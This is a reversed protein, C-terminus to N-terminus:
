FRKSVTVAWERPRGPQGAVSGQGLTQDFSTVLYYKDFINTASLSIDLDDAANSWTLRANALTYSSIYSTPANNAATYLGSQYTVDFRPTLTSGGPLVAEYQAGISWKWKTTFPAVDNLEVGQPGSAAPAISTYEFDIYSLSADILMGALPRITTEAEFGKVDANGANATMSCPAVANGPTFAPCSTLVLQIDRYRNYYASLNLRVARDLFDSKLGIEYANISESSFPRVQSAFYPRPNIGGGKYGTSFQAYTMLTPTWEYQINARYDWRNESYEGTEGDLSGVIPQGVSGDAFRRSFTYDKSEHTRRIGANVTLGYLVEWSVHGFFALSEAPVEDGLSAFQLGAYRIDQINAFSTKMDSYYGGVTYNIADAALTGSLRIEQSFFDTSIDTSSGNVPLPSLDADSGFSSDFSRYGTISKLQLNDSLTLDITGSLGYGEYKTTQPQRTAYPIGNEPDAPMVTTAYNCYRGCIFRSDFPVNYYDGRLAGTSDNDASVLVSASQARNDSVYDASLNIDLTDSPNYRLQGRVAQYNVDGMTGTQCDGTPQIAPIGGEAPNNASGPPNVCGYDYVKVYGNQRKAAASIRASLTDTLGFDAAGRIDVRNRSGYTAQLRGSGDGQPKKSYLKIAGGISNRGALTGQPGRLIEVRDLDLLDFVGGTLSPYYVDDVYLGVGPEVAPSPDYQGVGRISAAMSPGFNANNPQLNLGPAQGAVQSIDTQSRADLMDSSVATIAIPTDQLNQERFQATVVIEDFDGAASGAANQGSQQAGDQAFAAPSIALAALAACSM